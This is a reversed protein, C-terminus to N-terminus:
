KGVESKNTDNLTKPKSQSSKEIRYYMYILIAIMGLMSFIGAKSNMGVEMASVFDSM